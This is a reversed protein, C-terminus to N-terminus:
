HFRYAYVVKWQKWTYAHLFKHLSLFFFPLTIKNLAFWIKRKTKMTSNLIYRKELLLRNKARFELSYFRKGSFEISICRHVVNWLDNVHPLRNTCDDCSLAYWFTLKILKSWADNNLRYTSEHQQKKGRNCVVENACDIIKNRFNEM